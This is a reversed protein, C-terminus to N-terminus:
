LIILEGQLAGARDIAQFISIVDRSSLGLENLAAALEGVDTNPPLVVSRAVEQDVSATGITGTVADADTFPPPQVVFPDERTSITISGYTLMVEGLRVNGGAVVTGTRENVVVRAPIDVDVFMTEMGAIFAPAGGSASPVNVRITGANEVQAAGPYEENIAEAVRVANTFDPRKLVLGVSSADAMSGGAARTVIGGNPVRGTNSHNVRTNAGQASALAAGTSMPGQAMVMVENTLPNLLPTQLLVGGSLSRADGLASVTVDVPSGPGRFADLTATVMVAAANRSALMQPDVAIGFRQLMNAISQITYGAGRTGRARDGTRDLGVVLGYGTVQVPAAGELLVLDKLRASGAQQAFVDAATLSVLLLLTLIRIMVDTRRHM